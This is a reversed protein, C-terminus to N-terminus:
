KKLKKKTIKKQKYLKHETAFYRTAFKDTPDELKLIKVYKWKNRKAERVAKFLRAGMDLVEEFDDRDITDDVHMTSPYVKIRNCHVWKRKKNWQNLCDKITEYLIECYLVSPKDYLSEEGDKCSEFKAFETGFEEDEWIGDIAEDFLDDGNM